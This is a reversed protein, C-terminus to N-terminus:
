ASSYCFLFLNWPNFYKANNLLLLELTGPGCNPRSSLCDLALDYLVLRNMNLFKFLLGFPFGQLTRCLQCKRLENLSFYLSYILPFCSVLSTLFIKSYELNNSDPSCSFQVMFYCSTKSRSRQLHRHSMLISVIQTHLSFSSCLHSFIFVFFLVFALSTRPFKM